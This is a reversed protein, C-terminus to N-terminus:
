HESTKLSVADVVITVYLPIEQLITDPLAPGPPAAMVVQQQQPMPRRYRRREDGGGELYPNSYDSQAVYRQTASPAPTSETVQPLPAKSQTVNVYKVIFCNSSDAFAALVSAVETSFGRFAVRYPMVVGWTNSGPAAQIIDEGATDDQCAPVRQISELYNIKCDFLIHLIVKIQEIEQMWTAICEASFAMHLREQSFSFNYDPPLQVGSNTAEATFQRLTIQLHEVFGKEDVKPATPFPAFSKRFDALFTRVREQDAKAAEINEPTAPPKTDQETKLQQQTETYKSSVDAKANLAAHLLYGCYGTAILGVAVIIVFILNRKVWAM